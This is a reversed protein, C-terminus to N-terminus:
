QHNMWFDCEQKRVNQTNTINPGNGDTDIIILNDNLTSNYGTFPYWYYPSSPLIDIGNPDGYIAFNTWYKVWLKGLAQEGPGLLLPEIYWTNLLESAHCVGLFPMMMNMLLNNHVYLYEYVPQSGNQRLSNTLWRATDRSPCTMLYDGLVRVLAVWPSSYNTSPFNQYVDNGLTTGFQNILAQQYQHDTMSTNGDLMAFMSGEDHNSGIIVKVGPAIKGEAALKRPFDLIEVGDVVPGFKHLSIFDFM